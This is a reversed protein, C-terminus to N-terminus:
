RRSLPPGSKIAASPHGHPLLGCSGVRADDGDGAAKMNARQQQAIRPEDQVVRQPAPLDPPIADLRYQLHGGGQLIALKNPAIARVIEDPVHSGRPFRVGGVTLGGQGSACWWGGAAVPAPKPELSRLRQQRNM